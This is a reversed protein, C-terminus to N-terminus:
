GKRQQLWINALVSDIAKLALAIKQTPIYENEDKIFLLARKINVYGRYQEKSETDPSPVNNVRAFASYKGSAPQLQECIEEIDDVELYDSDKKRQLASILCFM